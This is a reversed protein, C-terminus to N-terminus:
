RGPMVHFGNGTMPTGLSRRLQELRNVDLQVIHLVYEDRSNLLLQVVNVQYQFIGDETRNGYIKNIIADLSLGTICVLGEESPMGYGFSNVTETIFCDWNDLRRGSFFRFEDLAATTDPTVDYMRGSATSIMRLARYQNVPKEANRRVINKVASGNANGRDKFYLSVYLANPPVERNVPGVMNGSNISIKCGYYDHFVESFMADITECVEVTNTYCTKTNCDFNIPEVKIKFEPNKKNVKADTAAANNSM